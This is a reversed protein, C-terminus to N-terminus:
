IIIYISIFVSVSRFSLKYRHCSTHTASVFVNDYKNRPSPSTVVYCTPSSVSRELLYSEVWGLGGRILLWAINIKIIRTTLYCTAQRHLLCIPTIPSPPTPLTTPLLPVHRGTPALHCRTTARTVHKHTNSFILIM